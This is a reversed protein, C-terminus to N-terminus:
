KSKAGNAAKQSDKQASKKPARAPQGNLGESLLEAETFKGDTIKEQVEFVAWNNRSLDNLARLADINNPDNDLVEDVVAAILYAQAVCTNAVKMATRRMGYGTEIRRSM